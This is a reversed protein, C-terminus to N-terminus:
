HGPPMAWLDLKGYPKVFASRQMGSAEHVVEILLLPPLLVLKPLLLLLLLMLLELPLLLPLPM